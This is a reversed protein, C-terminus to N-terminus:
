VYDFYMSMDYAHNDLEIKIITGKNVSFTELLEEATHVPFNRTYNYSQSNRGKRKVTVRAVKYTFFNSKRTMELYQENTQFTMQSAIETLKM